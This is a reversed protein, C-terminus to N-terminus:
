WINYVTHEKVAGTQPPIMELWARCKSCFSVDALTRETSTFKNNSVNNNNNTNNYNDTNNNNENNNNNYM